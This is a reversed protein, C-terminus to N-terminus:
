PLVTDDVCGRAKVWVLSLPSSDAGPSDAKSATYFQKEKPFIPDTKIMKIDNSM